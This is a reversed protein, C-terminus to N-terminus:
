RSGLEAPDGVVIENKVAIAGGDFANDRAAKRESWSEVVGTLTAVGDEVTVHVEGDDVFPSWFLQQEIDEEIDDDSRMSLGYTPLVYPRAVSLPGLRPGLEVALSNRVEVVGKTRSAVREAHEREYTSEVTGTLKARGRNVDVEITSRDLLPSRALAQRVHKEVAEDTLDREYRVKLFNKVRWVGVTNLADREAARRAALNDVIGTLIATGNTVEVAPHYSIVRPDYRFADRVAAAIEEDTRDVFKSRKRMRDRAWSEVNLADADVEKVGTVWADNVARTKEIASGVTGSLVVRASRVGTEILTDDVWVDMDLRREVEAEIEGDPRPTSPSVRLDNTVGTVGRVGRVVAGALQKEQWSDATGHLAVQGNVVDVDVDFSETAPDSSLEAVVARRVEADTRASPLVELRDIVSRVGRISRAIEVARDRALLHDVTGTLTTVGRMTKVDLFDSRVMPDARLDTEVARTMDDDTVKTGARAPGSVASIGVVGAALVAFTALRLVHMWGRRQEHRKM